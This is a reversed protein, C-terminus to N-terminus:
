LIPLENPCAYAFVLESGASEIQCFLCNRFHNEEFFARESVGSTKGSSRASLSTRSLATLQNFNISSVCMAMRRAEGLWEVGFVGGISSNAKILKRLDTERERM